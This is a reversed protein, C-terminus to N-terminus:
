LGGGPHFGLLTLFCLRQYLLSFPPDCGIMAAPTQMGGSPPPSLRDGKHNRDVFQTTASREGVSRARVELGFGGPLVVFDTVLVALIGALLYSAIGHM